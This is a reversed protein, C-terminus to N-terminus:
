FTVKIGLGPDLAMFAHGDTAVELFPKFDLSVAIPIREIKYEIGFIGDVGLGLESTERRYRGDYRGFDSRSAMHGGLGYYWNLGAVDFAPSYREVMLTVSFSNPYFGVIGEFATAHKTFHKISLGSTGLARVGVATNYTHGTKLQQAHIGGSMTFLAAAIIFKLYKM